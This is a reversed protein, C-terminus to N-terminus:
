NVARLGRSFLLGIPALCVAHPRPPTSVIVWFICLYYKNPKISLRFLRRTPQLQRQTPKTPGRIPIRNPSETQIQPEATQSTTEGGGIKQHPPLRAAHMESRCCKSTSLSLSLSTNGYHAPSMCGLGGVHLMCRLPLMCRARCAVHSLPLGIRNAVNILTALENVIVIALVPCENSLFM